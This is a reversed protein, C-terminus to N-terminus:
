TNSLSQNSFSFEIAATAWLAWAIYPSYFSRSYQLPLLTQGLIQHRLGALIICCHLGNM